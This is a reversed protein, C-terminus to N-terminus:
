LSAVAFGQDALAQALGTPWWFRSVGLGMILLLPEGEAGALQDYAINVAGNHAYKTPTWVNEWPRTRGTDSM